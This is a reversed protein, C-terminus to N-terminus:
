LMIISGTVSEYHLWLNQKYQMFVANVFSLSFFHGNHRHMYLGFSSYSYYKSTLLM